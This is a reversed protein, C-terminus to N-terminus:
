LGMLLENALMKSRLLKGNVCRGFCVMCSLLVGGLWAMVGCCVYPKAGVQAGSPAPTPQRLRLRFATLSCFTNELTVPNFSVKGPSGAAAAPSCVICLARGQHYLCRLM